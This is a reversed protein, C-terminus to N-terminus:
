PFSTSVSLTLHRISLQESSKCLISKCKCMKIKDVEFLPCCVGDCGMKQVCEM